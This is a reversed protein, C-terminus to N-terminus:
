DGSNGDELAWSCKTSQISNAQDDYYSLYGSLTKGDNGLMLVM